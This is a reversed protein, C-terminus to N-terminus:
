CNTSRWGCLIRSQQPKSWDEKPFSTNKKVIDGMNSLEMGQRQM